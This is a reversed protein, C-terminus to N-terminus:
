LWSFRTTSLLRGSKQRLTCTSGPAEGRTELLSLFDAFYYEVRALNMEDLCIFHPIEPERAAELLALLFQSPHYRREIPNYYGLLDDSGTWNPKVPM